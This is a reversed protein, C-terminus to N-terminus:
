KSTQTSLESEAVRRVGTFRARFLEDLAARVADPVRRALKEPDPLAEPVAEGEGPDAAAAALANAEEM